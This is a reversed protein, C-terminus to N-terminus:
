VYLSIYYLKYVKLRPDDGTRYCALDNNHKQAAEELSRTNLCDFFKNFIRCFNETETTNNVISDPDPQM